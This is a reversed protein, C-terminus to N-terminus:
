QEPLWDIIYITTLDSVTERGTVAVWFEEIVSTVGVFKIDVWAVLVVGTECFAEM